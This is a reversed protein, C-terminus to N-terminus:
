RHYRLLGFSLSHVDKADTFAELNEALKEVASDRQVTAQIQDVGLKPKKEVLRDVGGAEGVVGRGDRRVQEALVVCVCGNLCM